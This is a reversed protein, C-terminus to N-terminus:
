VSRSPRRLSRVSCAYPITARAPRHCTVPLSAWIPSSRGEPEIAGSDQSTRPSAATGQPVLASRTPCRSNRTTPRATSTVATWTTCTRTTVRQEVIRALADRIINLTIRRAAREAPDGTAKFLRGGEKGARRPLPWSSRRGCRRWRSPAGDCTRARSTIKTRGRKLPEEPAAGGAPVHTGPPLDADHDFVLLEVSRGARRRLVYAAVRIRLTM